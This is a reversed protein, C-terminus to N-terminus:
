DARKSYAQARRAATKCVKWAGSGLLGLVAVRLLLLLLDVPGWGVNGAEAAGRLGENVGNPDWIGGELLLLQQQYAEAEAAGPLHVNSMAAPASPQSASAAAAAAAASLSSAAKNFAVQPPPKPSCIPFVPPDVCKTFRRQVTVYFTRIEM